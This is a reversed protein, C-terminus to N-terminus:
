NIILKLNDVDLGRQAVDTCVLISRTIKKFRTMNIDRLRQEM